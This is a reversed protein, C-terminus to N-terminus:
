LGPPQQPSVLNSGLGEVRHDGETKVSESHTRQHQGKMVSGSMGLFPFLNPGERLLSEECQEKPQGCPHPKPAKYNQTCM